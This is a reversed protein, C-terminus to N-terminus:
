RSPKVQGHWRNLMRREDESFARNMLQRGAETQTIWAMSPRLVPEEWLLRARRLATDRSDQDLYPWLKAADAVHLAILWYDQPALMMAVSLNKAAEQPDREAKQEALLTWGRASAASLALGQEFDGTHNEPRGGALTLAEARMLIALGDRRDARALANAAERYASVPMPVHAVMYVPVPVAADIAVGDQM